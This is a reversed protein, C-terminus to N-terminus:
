PRGEEVDLCATRIWMVYSRGDFQVPTAYDPVSEPAPVGHYCYESEHVATGAQAPWADTPSLPSLVVGRPTVAWKASHYSVRTGPALRPVVLPRSPESM